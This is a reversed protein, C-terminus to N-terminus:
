RFIYSLSLGIRTPMIYYGHANAKLNGNVSYEEYKDGVNYEKQRYAVCGLGAHVDLSWRKTFNWVYGFTLGAGGGYGDRVKGNRTFEYTGGLASLGVFHSHMPRGSFYYRWEPQVLLLKADNIVWTGSSGLVSLSLTSSNGTVMEVTLNPVAAADWSLDTGVAVMQARVTGCVALMTLAGIILRKM